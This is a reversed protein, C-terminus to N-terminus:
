ATPSAHTKGQRKWFYATQVTVPGRAALDQPDSRHPGSLLGFPETATRSTARAPDATEDLTM